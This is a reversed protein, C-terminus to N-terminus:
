SRPPFLGQMCICWNIALYPMRNEHSLNGGTNGNTVTVGNDAGFGSVGTGWGSVQVGGGAGAVRGTAPAPLSAVPTSGAATAATVLKGTGDGLRISVDNDLANVTAFGQMGDGNFDGIAISFPNDGVTVDSAADYTATCNAPTQASVLQCLSVFVSLIILKKM